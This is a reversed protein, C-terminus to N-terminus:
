DPRTLDSPAALGYRDVLTDSLATLIEGRLSRRDDLWVQAPDSATAAELAPFYDVHPLGRAVTTAALQLTAKCIQNAVIVDELGYSRELPLPSVMLVVRIARSKQRLLQCIARLATEAAPYSLRKLAFRKPEARVADPPPVGALALRTSRDFWTETHALTLLVLDAEFARAAHQNIADRRRLAADRSGTPDAGALHPDVWASAGTRILAEEPFSRRGLAWELDQRIAPPTAKDLLGSEPGQRLAAIDDDRGPRIMGLGRRSLMRDFTRALGDGMAFVTAQPTLRFGPKGAPIVLGRSLREAASDPGESWFSHRREAPIDPM